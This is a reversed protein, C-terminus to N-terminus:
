DAWEFRHYQVKAPEADGPRRSAPQELKLDSTKVQALLRCNVEFAGYLGYEAVISLGISL